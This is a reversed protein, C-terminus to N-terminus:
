LMLTIILFTIASGAIAVASRDYCSWYLHESDLCWLQIAAVRMVKWLVCMLTPVPYCEYLLLGLMYNRNINICLLTSIFWVGFKYCFNRLHLSNIGKQLLTNRFPVVASHM